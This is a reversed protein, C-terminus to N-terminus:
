RCRSGDRDALRVRRAARERRSVPLAPAVDKMYLAYQERLKALEAKLEAGTSLTHMPRFAAQPDNEVPLFKQPLEPPAPEVLTSRLQYRATAIDAFKDQASLPASSLAAALSLLAFTVKPTANM